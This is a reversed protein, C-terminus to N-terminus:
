RPLIEKKNGEEFSFTKGCEMCTCHQTVTNHLSSEVIKGDKVISPIHLATSTCYDLSFHKAGCHPCVIDDYFGKPEVKSAFRDNITLCENLDVADPISYHAEEYFLSPYRECLDRAIEEREVACILRSVGQGDYLKEKIIFYRM